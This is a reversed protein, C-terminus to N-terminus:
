IHVKAWRFIGAKLQDHGYKFFSVFLISYSESERRASGLKASRDLNYSTLDPHRDFERSDSEGTQDVLHRYDAPQRTLEGKVLFNTRLWGFIAFKKLFM